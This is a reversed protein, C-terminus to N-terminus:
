EPLKIRVGERIRGPDPFKDRNLEHIEQWRKADGLQERAISYLTDKAQVQYWRFGDTSRKKERTASQNTRAALELRTAPRAVASVAPGPAVTASATTAASAEGGPSPYGPIVPLVLVDGVGLSNQDPLQERNAHYIAQVVAAAGSGYHQKAIGSLTEGKAVTHRAPRVRAPARPGNQGPGTIIPQVGAGPRGRLSMLDRPQGSADGPVAPGAGPQGQQLEAYKQDLLRQLRAADPGTTVPAVGQGEGGVGTGVTQAPAGSADFGMAVAQEADGVSDDGARGTEQPPLWVFREVPVASEPMQVPAASGEVAGSPGAPVMVAPQQALASDVPFLFPLQTQLSADRGRNALIVAFCIIFALGVLLGVKTEKAM